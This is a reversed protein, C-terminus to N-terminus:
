AASASTDQASLRGTNSISSSTSSLSLSPSPDALVGPLTPTEPDQEWRQWKLAKHFRKHVNTLVVAYSSPPCAPLGKENALPTPQTYSM